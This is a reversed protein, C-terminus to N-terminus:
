PGVVRAYTVQGPFVPVVIDKGLGDATVIVNLEHDNAQAPYAPQFNIKTTGIVLGNEVHFQTTGAPSATFQLGAPAGDIVITAQTQPEIAPHM